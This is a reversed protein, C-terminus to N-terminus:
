QESSRRRSVSLLGFHSLLDRGGPSLAFQEWSRELGDLGGIDFLDRLFAGATMREGRWELLEEGALEDLEVALNVLEDLRDRADHVSRELAVLDSLLQRTKAEIEARRAILSAPNKEVLLALPFGVIDALEVAEGVTVRRNGREIKGITTQHFEYGRETMQEAVDDQSLRAGIRAERLAEAFAADM